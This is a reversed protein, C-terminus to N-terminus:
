DPILGDSNDPKELNNVWTVNQINVSWLAFKVCRSLSDIIAQRGKEPLGPQCSSFTQNWIPFNKTWTQAIAKSLM